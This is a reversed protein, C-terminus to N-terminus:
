TASGLDPRVCLLDWAKRHFTDLLSTRDFVSTFRHEFVSDPLEFMGSINHSDLVLLLWVETLTRRYQQVKANKADIRSQVLDPTLEGIIAANAGVWYSRDYTALRVVSISSVGRPLGNPYRWSWEITAFGGVEPLNAAVVEVLKQATGAISSKPPAASPDWHVHVEVNVGITRDWIAKAGNLVQERIGEMQRLSIARGNAPSLIRTVELGYRGTSTVLAFDPGEGPRQLEALGALGVAEMFSAVYFREDEEKSTM